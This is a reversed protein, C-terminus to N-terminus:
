PRITVALRESNLCFKTHDNMTARFNQYGFSATTRVAVGMDHRAQCGRQQVLSLAVKSPGLAALMTVLGWCVRGLLKTLVADVLQGRSVM